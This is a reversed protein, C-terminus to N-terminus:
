RLASYAKRVFEQVHGDLADSTDLPVYREEGRRMLRGMPDELPLDNPFTLTPPGRQARVIAFPRVRRLYVVETADVREVVDPGLSLTLARLALFAMRPDPRLRQLFGTLRAHDTTGARVDQGSM